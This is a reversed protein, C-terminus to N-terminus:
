NIGVIEFMFISKGIIDNISNVIRPQQTNLVIRNISINIIDTGVSKSFYYTPKKNSQSENTTQYGEGTSNIPLMPEISTQFLVRNAAPDFNFGSMYYEIMTNNYMDSNLSSANTNYTTPLFTCQNQILTIAFRSYKNYYSDGMLQRLNVNYWTYSENNNEIKGQTNDITLNFYNNADISQSIWSTKLKLNRTETNM